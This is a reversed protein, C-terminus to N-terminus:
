KVNAKADYLKPVNKSRFEKNALDALKCMKEPM